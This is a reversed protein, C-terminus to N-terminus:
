ASCTSGLVLEFLQGGDFPQDNIWQTFDHFQGGFAVIAFPQRDELVDGTGASGSFTKGVRRELSSIGPVEGSTQDIHGM